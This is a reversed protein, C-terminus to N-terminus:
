FQALFNSDKEAGVERAIMNKRLDDREARRRKTAAVKVVTNDDERVIVM